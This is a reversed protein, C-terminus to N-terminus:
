LEKGMSKQSSFFEELIFEELIFEELIFENKLINLYNKKVSISIMAPVITLSSPIQSNPRVIELIEMTVNCIKDIERSLKNRVNNKQIM